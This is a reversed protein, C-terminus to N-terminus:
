VRLYRRRLLGLGTLGSGFLLLAPPIPTPTATQEVEINDLYFFLPPNALGFTLPTTNGSATVYYTFKTMDYGIATVSDVLTTDGWNVTFETPDGYGTDDALWFSLQYTAGPTTPLNQTIYGLITPGAQLLYQGMDVGAPQHPIPQGQWKPFEAWAAVFTSDTEGSLTWGTLDGSEFSGNAVINAFSPNSFSLISMAFLLAVKKM